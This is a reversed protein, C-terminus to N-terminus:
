QKGKLPSVPPSSPSPREKRPSLQVSAGALSLNFSHPPDAASNGGALGVRFGGGVTDGQNIPKPSSPSHKPQKSPSINPPSATAHQQQQQEGWDEEEGGRGGVGGGGVGRVSAAGGRVKGLEKTIAVQLRALERGAELVGSAHSAEEGASGQGLARVERMFAESEEMGSAVAAYTARLERLLPTDSPSVGEGGPSTLPLSRTPPRLHAAQPPRGGGTLLMPLPGTLPPLSASEPLGKGGKFQNIMQLRRKEADTNRGPKLPPLSIDGTRAEVELRKRITSQSRKQIGLREIPAPGPAPTPLVSPIDLSAITERDISPETPDLARRSPNIGLDKMRPQYQLPAGTKLSSFHPTGSYKQKGYLARLLRGAETNLGFELAM